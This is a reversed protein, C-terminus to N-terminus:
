VFGCTFARPWRIYLRVRPEGFLTNIFGQVLFWVHLPLHFRQHYQHEVADGERDREDEEVRDERLSLLDVRHGAPAVLGREYQVNHPPLSRRSGPLICYKFHSVRGITALDRHQIVRHTRICERYILQNTIYAAIHKKSPSVDQLMCTNESSISCIHKTHVYTHIYADDVMTSHVPWALGYM